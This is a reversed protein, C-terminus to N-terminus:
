LMAIARTTDFASTAGTDLIEGIPGANARVASPVIGTTDCELRWGFALQARRM